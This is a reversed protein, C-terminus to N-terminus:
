DSHRLSDRNACDRLTDTTERQYQRLNEKAGFYAYVVEKPM